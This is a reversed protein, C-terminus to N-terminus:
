LDAAHVSHRAVEGRDKHRIICDMSRKSRYGMSHTWADGPPLIAFSEVECGPFEHRTQTHIHGTMWVRHKTAGWDEARDAAMVQPLQAPKVKDGHHTGILNKGFRFYHFMKASTDIFVRPENEFALELSIALFRSAHEDHNGIEPIVHVTQHKALAMEILGIAVRIGVRLVKDFRSDVDQRTGRTTTNAQNDAHFFDGLFAILATGAPPASEILDRTANTMLDVAASLDYDAESDGDWSYMGVHPDGYPYIALLAECSTAPRKIPQIIGRIEESAEKIEQILIEHQQEADRATKTWQLKVEGDPGRLTSKGKVVFGPPALGAADAEPSHGMQAARNRIVQISQVVANKSVGLIEAAGRWTGMQFYVDLRERQLENACFPKLSEYELRDM